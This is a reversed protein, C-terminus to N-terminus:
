IGTMSVSSHDSGYAKGKHDKLESPNVGSGGVWILDASVRTSQQHGNKTGKGSGKKLEVRLTNKAHISGRCNPLMPKGSSSMPLPMFKDRDAQILDGLENFDGGIIVKDATGKSLALRQVERIKEIAKAAYLLSQETSGVPEDASGYHGGHVATVLVHEGSTVQKFIQCVVTGPRRHHGGPVEDITPSGTLTQLVAKSYFIQLGKTSWLATMGKRTFTARNDDDGEPCIVIDCTNALEAAAEELRRGDKYKAEAASAANWVAVALRGSRHESESESHDGGDCGCLDWM